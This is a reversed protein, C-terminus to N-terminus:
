DDEAKLRRTSYRHGSTEDKDAKAPADTKASAEAAKSKPEAKAKPAAEAEAPPADKAYGIARFARGWDGNAEFADGPQLARGGYRYARTAILSMPM